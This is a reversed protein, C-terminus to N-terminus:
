EQAWRAIRNIRAALGKAGIEPSISRDLVPLLALALFTLIAILLPIHM